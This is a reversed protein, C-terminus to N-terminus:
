PTYRVPIGNREAYEVFGQLLATGAGDGILDAGKPTPHIGDSAIHGRQQWLKLSEKGGMYGRTDWFACGFEHALARQTDIVFLFSPRPGDQPGILLCSAGPAGGRV